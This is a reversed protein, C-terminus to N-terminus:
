SKLAISLSFLKVLFVVFDYNQNFVYIGRPVCRCIFLYDNFSTGHVCPSFARLLLFALEQTQPVRLRTTPYGAPSYTHTYYFIYYRDYLNIYIYLVFRIRGVSAAIDAIRLRKKRGRTCRETTACRQEGRKTCLTIAPNPNKTEDEVRM